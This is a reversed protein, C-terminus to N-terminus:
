VIKRKTKKEIIDEIRNLLDKIDDDEKFSKSILLITRLRNVDVVENCFLRLFKRSQKFEKNTYYDKLKNHIEKLPATGSLKKNDLIFTKFESYYDSSLENYLDCFQYTMKQEANLKGWASIKVEKYLFKNVKIAEEETCSIKHKNGAIEIHINPSKGGNEILKGTFFELNFYLEAKTSTRKTKYKHGFFDILSVEMGSIYSHADYKLGNSQVLQALSNVTEVYTNNRNKDNQGVLKFNNQIKEIKNAPGEISVAASGKTIKIRLDANNEANELEAIKSLNEIIVMLSKAAHISLNDLEVAKGDAETTIKFEIKGTDM